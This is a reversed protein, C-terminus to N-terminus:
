RRVRAGAASASFSCERQAVAVVERGSQDVFQPQLGDAFAGLAGVAHLAPGLPGGREHDQAVDARPRAAEARHGLALGLREFDVLGFAHGFRRGPQAQLCTTM